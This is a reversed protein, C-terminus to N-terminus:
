RVPAKWKYFVGICTSILGMGLAYLGIRIAMGSFFAEELLVIMRDTDPDLLWLQNTFFIEHFQIFVQTFDHRSLWLLWALFGILYFAAWLFGDRLLAKSHWKLANLSLLIGLIALSSWQVARNLKFLKLVDVMHAREKENFFDMKQGDITVTVSLQESKLNVYAMISQKVREFDESSLRVKERSHLTKFAQDYYTEDSVGLTIAGSLMSLFLNGVLFITLFFRMLYRNQFYDEGKKLHRMM